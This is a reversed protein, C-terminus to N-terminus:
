RGAGKADARPTAAVLQDVVARNRRVIAGPCVLSRVLMAGPEVRAGSLVVSDHLYASNDVTAGQQVISFTSDLNEEFPNTTVAGGAAQQHHVRLAHIYDGLTRVPLGTPEPRQVVGVRYSEAIMPLAQEKMDIFGAEPITRLVGCRLLMLGSPTGDLHGIISVDGAEAALAAALDALPEILIQAGNGVLLYDEDRYDKALDRLVGGTGRYESPDREVAFRVRGNDAAADPAHTSRGVM